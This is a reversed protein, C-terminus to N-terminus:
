GSARTVMRAPVSAQATATAQTRSAGVKRGLGILKGNACGSRSTRRSAPQVRGSFSQSATRAIAAVSVTM